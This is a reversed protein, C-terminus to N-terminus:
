SVSNCNKHFLVGFINNEIALVVTPSTSVFYKLPLKRKSTFNKEFYIKMQFNLFEFLVKLKKRQKEGGRKSQFIFVITLM